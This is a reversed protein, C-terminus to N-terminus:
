KVGILQVITTFKDKYDNIEKTTSKEDIVLENLIGNSNIKKRKSLYLTTWEDDNGKVQIGIIKNKKNFANMVRDSGGLNAFDLIENSYKKFTNLENTFHTPSILTGKLQKELQRVKAKQQKLEIVQDKYDDVFNILRQEFDM